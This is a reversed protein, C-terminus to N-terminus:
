HTVKFTSCESRKMPFNFGSDKGSIRGEIRGNMQTSNQLQYIVRQPFDHDLNEFVYTNDSWKILKFSAEDQKPLKASFYFDGREDQFIRTFEWTTVKGAKVTRGMGMMSNGAPKMWQETVEPGGDTNSWCGALWGFNDISPKSEQALAPLGLALLLLMGSFVRPKM